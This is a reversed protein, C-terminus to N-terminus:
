NPRRSKRLTALVIDAARVSPSQNGTSMIADIKAFAEVQRRRAPSDGLVERLAQSLKEPTCDQQLFEPVVNEGVVLNALIVSQLNIARLLIWAEVAGTRYATVMPVGALALELTVTGSKALAARAIRFAARKEQEGIVIRPAVKWSRVGDAVAEQLHPMTPLILEFAVGEDTLRALTEGFVAMHHRVESRRSGPLVLLVPPPADRRTQENGSPRLSGIQETLPHGVYSCPPGRLRSYAAPEFPLLALVHDVYGCMARARGPRWAWVSPSVYDIIPISPDHARVRRAVRHTFDPSDIIVLIDPSAETVANATGRILRLIKPLQKVVAALGMISLQEIPFLSTLGERAMSQGGVGVFRVAGGLRQRLVKMLAAGLRDGSEETAILFIKRAVDGTTRVSSV